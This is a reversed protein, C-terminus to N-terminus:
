RQPTNLAHTGSRGPGGETAKAHAARAQSLLARLPDFVGDDAALNLRRFVAILTEAVDLLDPAASVLRANVLQQEWGYYSAFSCIMSGVKEGPYRPESSFVTASLMPNGSGDGVQWPGPTHTLVSTRATSM